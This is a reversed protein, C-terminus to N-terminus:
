YLNFKNTQRNESSFVQYCVENLLIRKDIIAIVSM